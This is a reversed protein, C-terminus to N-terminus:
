FSFLLGGSLTSQREQIGSQGDIPRRLYRVKGSVEFGFKSSLAIQLGGGLGAGFAFPLAGVSAGSSYIPWFIEATGVLRIRGKPVYHYKLEAMPSIINTSELASLVNPNPTVQILFVRAGVALNWAAQAGGLQYISYTGQGDMFGLTETESRASGFAGRFTLQDNGAALYGFPAGNVKFVRSEYQPAAADAGLSNLEGGFGFWWRGVVVSQGTAEVVPSAATVNPKMSFSIKSYPEIQQHTSTEDLLAIQSEDAGTVSTVRVDFMRRRTSNFDPRRFEFLELIDGEKIGHASGLNITGTTKSSAVGTVFGRYPVARVVGEVVRDALISVANPMELEGVLYRFQFKRLRHGSASALYGRIEELGIEFVFIGDASAKGVAASLVAASSRSDFSGDIALPEFYTKSAMDQLLREALRAEIDRPVFKRAERLVSIKSIGVVRVAVDRYNPTSPGTKSEGATEVEDLDDVDDLDDLDDLDGIDSQVRGVTKPKVKSPKTIKKKATAKATSKTAAKSKAKRSTSTPKKKTAVEASQAFAAPGWGVQLSVLLVAFVLLRLQGLRRGARLYM